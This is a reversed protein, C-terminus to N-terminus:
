YGMVKVINLFLQRVNAGMVKKGKVSNELWYGPSSVIKKASLFDVAENITATGSLKLLISQVWEGNVPLNQIGANKWFADDKLLGKSKLKDVAPIYDKAGLMNNIEAQVEARFEDVTRGNDKFFGYPDTHDTERWKASVEQHSMLNDKTVVYKKLVNVFVWAFLYVGRNWVEQFRAGDFHCLEIQIFAVNAHAGAGWCRENWPMTQTISDYDIFGHVSANVTNNNFYRQEAEDTAGPTATEHLVMGIANLPKKSRNKGIFDQRIEYQM